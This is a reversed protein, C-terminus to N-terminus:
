RSRQQTPPTQAYHSRVAPQGTHGPGVQDDAGLYAYPLRIDRHGTCTIRHLRPGYAFGATRLRAALQRAAAPGGELDIASLDLDAILHGHPTLWGTARTQVALKDGVYHLGHVCTILDFSRAPQWRRSHPMMWCGPVVIVMVCATLMGASGWVRRDRVRVLVVATGARLLVRLAEVVAPVRKHCETVIAGSSWRGPRRILIGVSHIPIEPGAPCIV